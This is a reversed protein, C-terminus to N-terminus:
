YYRSRSYKHKRTKSRKRGRYKRRARGRAKRTGGEGFFDPLPANTYLRETSMIERIKEITRDIMVRPSPTEHTNFLVNYIKQINFLLENQVGKIKDDYVLKTMNTSIEAPMNAMILANVTENFSNSTNQIVIISLIQSTLVQHMSWVKEPTHANRQLYIMLKTRLQSIIVQLDSIMKAKFMREIQLLLGEVMSKQTINLRLVRRKEDLVESYKGFLRNCCYNLSYNAIANDSESTLMPLRSTGTITPRTRPVVEEIGCVPESAVYQKVYMATSCAHQVPTLHLKTVLEIIPSCVIRIAEVRGRLIQEGARRNGRGLYNCLNAGGGWSKTTIIDNIFEEIRGNDINFQSDEYTIFHSDNKVQNCIRHAWRYEKRLGSVYANSLNIGEEETIQEFLNHEYLGTFVLAQAIPFVHECEPGLEDTGIDGGCIWCLDPAGIINGCQTSPTSKEVFDRLSAHNRQLCNVTEEGLIQKLLDTLGQLLHFPEALSAYERGEPSEWFEPPQQVRMDLPLLISKDTVFTTKIAM